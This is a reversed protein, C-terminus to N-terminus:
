FLFGKEQCKQASSSIYQTTSELFLQRLDVSYVAFVQPHRNRNSVRGLTDEVSDTVTVRAYLNFNDDYHYGTINPM